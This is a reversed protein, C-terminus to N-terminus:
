FSATMLERARILSSNMKAIDIYGVKNFSTSEVTIDGKYGTSKVFGFFNGFDIQGDGLHLTKLCSWDKVGGKYDNIHLHVVREWLPHNKELMIDGLQGHFEAMKTDFTFSIDPFSGLLQEMNSMPDFRNCVVNEVTLLLGFGESAERLRKYMEMNHPLDKDSDVGSWLHLVLKESGLRRALHCNIEFLEEARENDGDANRSILDGINKEIHFTPFPKKMRNLTDAVKDPDSYWDDYMMLEFGDCDLRDELGALLTYDRGNARGLLAGTSCLIRNM